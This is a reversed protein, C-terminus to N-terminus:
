GALRTRGKRGLLGSCRRIPSRSLSTHHTQGVGIGASDPTPLGAISDRPRSFHAPFGLGIESICVVKPNEEALEKLAQYTLDDLPGQLDSPHLGVGAYMSPYRDALTVCDRSSRLTTGASIILGVNAAAARGLVDPIEAPPFHDLHTHSDVLPFM